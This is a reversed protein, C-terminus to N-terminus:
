APGIDEVLIFGVQTGTVTSGVTGTGTVRELSLKYTHSGASPTLVYSGFCLLTDSAVNPQADVTQLVTLGERIAMRTTGDAVTRTTHLFGTIQVRRSSGVTVTAAAGTLDTEATIGSQTATQAGYGLQVADEVDRFAFEPSLILRASRVGGPAGSHEIGEVACTQEFLTAGLPRNRVTIADGLERSLIAPYFTSEVGSIPPGLDLSTIRRRQDAYEGTILNAYDQSYSDSSHLLGDLEYDFRGFEDVSATDESTKAVGNLRSIIARNRIVEDGDDPVIATYGIETGSDGFIEAAASRAFLTSRDVFRVNGDRAMFLLGFETEAAKQLHELAPTGLTASQLTTLGTDLSRLGSPWEVIDLIRAMRAGPLDSQWPASRASAHASIQAATLAYNYYAVDQVEANTGFEGVLPDNNTTNGVAIQVTDSPLSPAPAATTLVTDETGDVFMRAVTGSDIIGVVHHIVSDDKRTTSRAVVAGGAATNGLTIQVRGPNATSLVLRLQRDAPSGNGAVESIVRFSSDEQEQSRFVAEISLPFTPVPTTATAEAVNGNAAVPHLFLTSENEDNTVLSEGGFPNSVYTLDRTGPTSHDLAITNTAPNSMRFWAVPTDTRVLHAYVSEPLDTRQLIKFGDTATLTATADKGVGPYDLQWRDVYGDFVPYTVGSFTERIRMRRMPRLNGYFPGATNVSDYQRSLNGLVVTARGPQFRELERTRGRQVDWSRVDHSIDVWLPDELAGTTFSVEVALTTETDAPIDDVDSGAYGVGGYPHRGYSM